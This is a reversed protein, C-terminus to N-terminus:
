AQGTHQAILWNRVAATVADTRELTMMHGANEITVLTANSIHEHMYESLSLRTMKDKEGGIILVPMQLEHLRERVDFRSCALYDDHLTQPEVELLQDKMALRMDDTALPGFLWKSLTQALEAPANLSQELIAPNVALQAGTAFLMLGDSREPYNLGFTQTIAGGMSHGAIIASPLEIADMLALVADAYAAIDKCGPDDSKGHGPLDIIIANAEPLQRLEKPWDLRSGGAGHVFIVPTHPSDPKRHDSYFLKGTQTHIDPM